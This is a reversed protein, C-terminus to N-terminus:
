LDAHLGWVREAAGLWSFSRSRDAGLVSLRRGSDGVADVVADPMSEPDVVVGGDAIVDHHVGSEAAVVPVGLTMAEVVRWPWSAITSTAVLASASAFVAARDDASLVGRIHARSEPLGVSAAIEALKPESGEPADLVVADTGAALAARFGQALSDASGTLVVYAAPMSLAQRRTAADFPVVFGSPAAGPIVRIRNGLKAIEVLRAGIAHSPVVVADAHKVARKLMGREWAVRTKSLCGPADWAQLDWVTVTTQDHDHVRDHRVLPAMLTPSHILGGGVGAVIGLQWSGALERRALSLRRIDSIGPVTVETGSPVIADVVCGAPATAVLAAALDSAAAAQDADVVHTLQDLVVRLRAGMRGCYDALVRIGPLADAHPRIAGGCGPYAAEHKFAPTLSPRRGTRRRQNRHVM